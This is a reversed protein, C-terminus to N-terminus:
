KIGIEKKYWKAKKFWLKSSDPKNTLPLFKYEERTIDAALNKKEGTSCWECFTSILKISNNKRNILFVEEIINLNYLSRQQTGIFMQTKLSDDNILYAGDTVEAKEIKRYFEGSIKSIIDKDSSNEMTLATSTFTGDSYFFFLNAWYRDDDNEAHFEEFRYYVGNTNFSLPIKPPLKYYTFRKHNVTVCSNFVAILILLFIIKKM